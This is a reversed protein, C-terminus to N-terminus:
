LSTREGHARRIMLWMPPGKRAIRFVELVEFGFHRYFDINAENTNELYTPLGSADAHGLARHLLASGIGRSRMSSATALLPIYFHKESPAQRELADVQLVRSLLRGVGFVRVGLGIEALQQRIGLKWSDPPMVLLAGSLRDAVLITGDDLARHLFWTFFHSLRRRHTPGPSVLWRFFPDELFADTLMETLGELDRADGERIEVADSTSIACGGPV